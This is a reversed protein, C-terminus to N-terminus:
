ITQIPAVSFGPGQRAEYKMSIKTAGGPSSGPSEAKFPGRTLWNCWPALCVVVESWEAIRKMLRCLLLNIANGSGCGLSNPLLPRGM